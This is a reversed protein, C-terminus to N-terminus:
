NHNIRKLILPIILIIALIGIASLSNKVGSKIKDAISPKASPKSEDTASPIVVPVTDVKTKYITDIRNCTRERWRYVKKIVTDGRAEIMISDREYISDTRYRLERVTDREIREVPVTVVKRSCAGGLAVIGAVALVM